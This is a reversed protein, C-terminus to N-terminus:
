LDGCAGCGQQALAAPSARNLESNLLPGHLYAVLSGADSGYMDYVLRHGSYTFTLDYEVAM